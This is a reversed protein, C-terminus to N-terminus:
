NSAADPKKEGKYPNPATEYTGEVNEKLELVHKDIWARMGVATTVGRFDEIRVPADTHVIRKHNDLTLRETLLRSSRLEKHERVLEVDGELTLKEGDMDYRGKDGSAIWPYGTKAEFIAGGPKIMLAADSDDFQEARESFFRSSLRGKDDYSRYTGKIIFADPERPGRLAADDPTTPSEDSRWLMVLLVATLLAIFSYRALPPPPWFQKM